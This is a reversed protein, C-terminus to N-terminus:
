RNRRLLRTGLFALLRMNKALRWWVPTGVPHVVFSSVMAQVGDGLPPSHGFCCLQIDLPLLKKLSQDALLRDQQFLPLPQSLRDGSNFMIDGSFLVGRSESLLCVSGPTHGPVHLVKLGGLVPIIDGEHLLVDVNVSRVRLLGAIRRFVLGGAGSLGPLLMGHQTEAAHALVKAGTLVRLQAASGAHDLHGHTLVVRKLEDPRRGLRAIFRAIAPGSGPLGSDVLALTDEVILYVNGGRVGEVLHLNPAIQM